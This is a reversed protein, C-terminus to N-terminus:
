TEDGTKIEKPRGQSRDVEAQIKERLDVYNTWHLQKGNLFLTPTGQVGLAQGYEWDATVKGRTRGSSVCQSFDAENLKTKRAIDLLNERSYPKGSAGMRYIRDHYERFADQERACEAAEAADQSGQGLFPYHRYEFRIDGDRIFEKDLAPLMVLTFRACHSCQFDGFETLLPIDGPQIGPAPPDKGAIGPQMTAWFAAAAAALMLTATVTLMLKRSRNM